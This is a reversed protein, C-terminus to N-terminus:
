APIEPFMARHRAELAAALARSIAIASGLYVSVAEFPEDTALGSRENWAEETRKGLSMAAKAFGEWDGAVLAKAGRNVAAVHRDDVVGANINEAIRDAAEVSMLALTDLYVFPTHVPRGDRPDLGFRYVRDPDLIVGAEAQDDYDDVEERLRGIMRVLDLSPGEEGSENYAKVVARAAKALEDAKM